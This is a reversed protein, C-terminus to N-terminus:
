PHSPNLLYGSLKSELNSADFGVNRNLAGNLNALAKDGDALRKADVAIKYGGVGLPKNRVNSDSPIPRLHTFSVFVFLLNDLPQASTERSRLTPTL